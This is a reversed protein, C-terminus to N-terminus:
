EAATKKQALCAKYVWWLFFVQFPLRAWLLWRPVAKGFLEMGNQLAYINAPYVALLLLILGLGAARRTSPLLVGLGGAIEALGSIAVLEKHAPLYDPMIDLYPQPSRFHNAGAVIFFFGLLNRSLSQSM